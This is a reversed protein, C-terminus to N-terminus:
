FKDTSDIARRLRDNCTERRKNTVVGIACINSAITSFACMIAFRPDLTVILLITSAVCLIVSLIFCQRAAMGVDDIEDGCSQLSLKQELLDDFDSQWKAAAKPSKGAAAGHELMKRLREDIAKLEADRWDMDKM